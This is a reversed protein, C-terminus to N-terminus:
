TITNILYLVMINKIKFHDQNSVRTHPLTVQQRTESAIFEVKLAFASDSHLEGCPANLHIPLRHLSLNPVCSSLFAVSGDSWRLHKEKRMNWIGVSMKSLKHINQKIFDLLENLGLVTLLQLSTIIRPFDVGCTFLKKKNKITQLVFGGSM